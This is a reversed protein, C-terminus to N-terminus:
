IKTMCTDKAPPDKVVMLWNQLNPLNVQVIKENLPVYIILTGNLSTATATTGGSFRVDVQTVIDAGQPTEVRITQMAAVRRQESIAEAGGCKAKFAIQSQTLASLDGAAPTWNVRMELAPGNGVLSVTAQLTHSVKADDFADVIEFQGADGVEVGNVDVSLTQVAGTKIDPNSWTPNLVEPISLKYRGVPTEEKVVDGTAPTKKEELLAWPDVPTPRHKLKYPINELPRNQSDRVNFEIWHCPVLFTFIVAGGPILNKTDALGPQANAWDYKAQLAGPFGITVTCASPVSPFPGFGKRGNSATNANQPAVNTRSVAISAGSVPKTPVLHPPRYSLVEVNAAGQHLPCQVAPDDINKRAIVGTLWDGM